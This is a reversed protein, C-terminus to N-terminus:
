AKAQVSIARNHSAMRRSSSMYAALFYARRFDDTAVAEASKRFNERLSGAYVGQLHHKPM